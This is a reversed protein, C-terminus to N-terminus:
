PKKAFTVEPYMASKGDLLPVTAGGLHKDFFAIDYANTVALARAAAISGFNMPDPMGEQTLVSDFDVFSGETSNMLGLLYATGTANQFESPPPDPNSQFLLFPSSLKAGFAPSLQLVGDLAIAAKVRPEVSLLNLATVGGFSFGYIGVKATDLHGSLEGLPDATDLALTRDLVYRVDDLWVASEAQLATSDHVHTGAVSSGDAYVTIQAWYPHTVTAVM